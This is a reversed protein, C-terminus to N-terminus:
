AFRVPPLKCPRHSTIHFNPWSVRKSTYWVALGWNKQEGKSHCLVQKHKPSKIRRYIKYLTLIHFSTDLVAFSNRLNEEYMTFYVVYEYISINWLWRTAQYTIIILLRASPHLHKLAVYVLMELVFNCYNDKM